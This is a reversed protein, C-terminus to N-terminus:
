LIDGGWRTEKPILVQAATKKRIVMCITGATAALFLGAYFATFAYFGISMDFVGGIHLSQIIPISASGVLALLMLSLGFIALYKFFKM